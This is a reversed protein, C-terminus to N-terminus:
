GATVRMVEEVSTVGANIKDFGAELLPQMGLAQARDRIVGLPPDSVILDRLEDDPVLLEYIGARGKMGSHHCQTCGAGAYLHDLRMGLREVSHQTAPPPTVERKCHPCITRVLRQGLVAVLSAGILYPEVALNRLRTIASAADNTHLTSLVLHGTLAAQVATRATEPDRIEGLMIVDPDQRLLSRLVHPFTLGIKEHVQFQNVGPLQFEIPDEVTCINISENNIENLVAYLTTSKGSGTPGTVLIIGYPKHVERAFSERVAPSLGLQDLGVPTNRTDIVRIVVKEGFRNPLTSVRLDVRTGDVRATIAGDQPLRRESIDLGAMIKIRSVIAPLLQYPPRLREFLAGDVRYRVRLEREGPEVHIDSAGDRVASQILHNVLRVAPAESAQSELDAAMMGAYDSPGREGEGEETCIDEIVLRDAAYEQAKLAEEIDGKVAVVIQVSCGALQAIEEILFVDSPETIAVTLVGDVKFLPLVARGEIFERPLVGSVGPDLLEPTIRAFPCNNSEALAEAIQAASCFGLDILVEGLLKRSDSRQQEQLAETIQDRTILGREVLIEGVPKRHKVSSVEGM